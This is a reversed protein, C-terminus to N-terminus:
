FPMEIEEAITRYDVPHDELMAPEDANGEERNAMSENIVKLLDEVKMDELDGLDVPGLNLRNLLSKVFGVRTDYDFESTPCEETKFLEKCNECDMDDCIARALTMKLLNLADM